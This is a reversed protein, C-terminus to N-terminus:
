SYLLFAHMIQLLVNIIEFEWQLSPPQYPVYVSPSWYYDNIVIPFNINFDLCFIFTNICILMDLNNIRRILSIIISLIIDIIIMPFYAANFM